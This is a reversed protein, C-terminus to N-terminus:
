ELNTQGIDYQFIPYKYKDVGFNIIYLKGRKEDVVFDGLYIRDLNLQKRLTGDYNFIYLIL